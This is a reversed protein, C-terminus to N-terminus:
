RRARCEAYVERGMSGKATAFWQRIGDRAALCARETDFEQFRTDTAIANTTSFATIVILVYIV